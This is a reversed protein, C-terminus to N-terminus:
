CHLMCPVLVLQYVSLQTGIGSLYLHWIVWTLIEWNLTGWNRQIEFYYSVDLYCKKDDDVFQFL